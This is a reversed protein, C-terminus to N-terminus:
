DLYFTPDSGEGQTAILLHKHYILNDIFFVTRFLGATNITSKKATSEDEINKIELVNAPPDVGISPLAVTKFV